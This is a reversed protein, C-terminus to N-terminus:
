WFGSESFEEFQLKSCKNGSIGYGFIVCSGSGNRAM